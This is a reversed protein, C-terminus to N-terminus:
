GNRTISARHRLAKRLGARSNVDCKRYITKLHTKVTNLSVSLHLAVEQNSLGDAALTATQFERETLGFPPTGTELERAVAARGADQRGALAAIGSRIDDPCHPGLDEILPALISHTEAFPMLLRDPVAVALAEGLAVRAERREGMMARAAAVHIHGYVLALPYGLAGALGLTADAEGLVTEPKDNILLLRARCLQAFPVAPTFLRSAFSDPFREVLWPAADQPRSTLGMLFARAMDAELRNTRQPHTEAQRAIRELAASFDEARGGLAALRGFLLDAAIVVSVQDGAVAAQRAKHALIEALDAEGRCFLGEAEMLEAGGSGHGGTMAAYGPMHVRMEGLEADLRGAKGHYLLLVSPAGFTWSNTPSILSTRGRLLDSARKMREGMAVIDNFHAFADLLVLEGRLRDHEDSSVDAQGILGDMEACLAGFDEHCGQGFLEFALQIMSMPRRLKMEVSCNAVIDRLVEAYPRGSAVMLIGDEEFGALDIALIREYDGLCYYHAIAREREDNAACWDGAARLIDHQRAEPLRGFSERVFDLLTGHPHNLGTAPDFRLLGTRGLTDMLAAPLAPVGLLFCAQRESFADFPSLRLLCDREAEGLRDWVVDRLLGDITSVPAFDGTDRWRRLHLSLAIMWGEARRHLERRQEGTLTAGARAFYEGAEAETLRLDDIGIRLFGAKEYPMVSEPLPRAILLVHLAPCDNDLLAKWVGVPALPAILHFDDLVLWTQRRTAISRLLVSIDGVTDEDPPGFRLLAEGTAADIRGITQSLRRWGSAPSEDAGIHQIWLAGERLHEQLYNQAATTKGYGSPAEVIVSRALLAADLKKRLRAPFFPIGSQVLSIM